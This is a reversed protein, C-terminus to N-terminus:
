MNTSDPYVTGQPPYPQSPYGQQPPCPQQPPYGPQQSYPQQPPYGPQAPYPQHAYPQAPPYPQQHQMPQLPQTVTVNATNLNHIAGKNRRKHLLCFPCCCCCIVCMIILGLILSRIVGLIVPLKAAYEKVLSDDNVVTLHLLISEKEDLLLISRRFKGLIRTKGSNINWSYPVGTSFALGVFLNNQQM